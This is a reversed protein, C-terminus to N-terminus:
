TVPNASTTREKEIRAKEFGKFMEDLQQQQKVREKAGQGKEYKEYAEQMLETSTYLKCTNYLDNKTIPKSETPSGDMWSFLQCLYTEEDIQRIIKFQWELIKDEYTHGWLGIIGKVEPTETTPNVSKSSKGLNCDVCATILNGESDDGGEKVSVAHDCHLIVDPSSRGCYRCTFNDRRLVNFRISQPIPPRGQKKPPQLQRKM